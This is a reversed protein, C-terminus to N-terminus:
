CRVISEKPSSFVFLMNCYTTLANSLQDTPRQSNDHVVCMVHAYDHEPVIQTTTAM